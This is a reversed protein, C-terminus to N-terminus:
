FAVEPILRGQAGRQSAKCMVSAQNRMQRECVPAAKGINEVCADRCRVAMLQEYEDMVIDPNVVIKKGITHDLPQLGIVHDADGAIAAPDLVLRSPYKHIVLTSPIACGVEAPTDSVAPIGAALNRKVSRNRSFALEQITNEEAGPFRRQCGISHEEIWAEVKM